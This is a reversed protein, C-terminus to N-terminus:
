KKARDYSKKEHCGPLCSGGTESPRFRLQMTWKGYPVKERVLRPNKAAHVDHCTRCTRGRKGGKVHLAHLNKGGDRFGTAERTTTHEVLNAEHCEFCLAYAARAFPTYLNEPYSARLLLLKESGHPNHCASCGEERIAHHWEPNKALWSQMDLLKRKGVKLPRDHCELCLDVQPHLLLNSHESAHPSHCHLCRADQSAPAHPVTAETAIAVVEDHCSGCLDPVADSLIPEYPASHAEHCNLCDEDAADHVVAASRMTQGLEIHCEICLEKGEARLLGELKAAHPEHCRSCEGSAVPGHRSKRELPEADHCELCLTKQSEFRLMQDTASGHVAHCMLCGEEMADHLVEGQDVPEHCGSCLEPAERTAFRHESGQQPHCERCETGLEDWHLHPAEVIRAHCGGGLCPAEPDLSGPPQSAAQGVLPIWLALLAGVRLCQAARKM